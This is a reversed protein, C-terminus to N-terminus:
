RIIEVEQPVMLLIVCGTETRVAHKYNPPTYILDKQTPSENFYAEGKWSSPKKAVLITTFLISAGADFKLLFSPPRNQKEDFRLMQLLIGETNVGEETLPCETCETQVIYDQIDTSM